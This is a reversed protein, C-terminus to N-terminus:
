FDFVSILSLFCKGCIKTKITDCKCQAENREQSLILMICSLRSMVHGCASGHSQDHVAFYLYKQKPQTTHPFRSKVYAFVFARIKQTIVACRILAM